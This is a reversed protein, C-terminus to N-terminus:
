KNIVVTIRMPHDLLRNLGRLIIGVLYCASLFIFFGGITYAYGSVWLSVGHISVPYYPITEDLEFLQKGFIHDLYFVSAGIFFYIFMKVVPPFHLRWMPLKGIWGFLFTLIVMIATMIISVTAEIFPNLLGLLFWRTLFAAAGFVFLLEVYENM